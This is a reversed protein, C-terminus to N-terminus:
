YDCCQFPEGRNRVGSGSVAWGAQDRRQLKARSWRPTKADGRSTTQKWRPSNHSILIHMECLPSPASTRASHYNIDLNVHAHSSSATWAIRPYHSDAFAAM